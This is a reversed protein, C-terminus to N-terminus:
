AREGPEFRRVEIGARGALLDQMYTEIRGRYPPKVCDWRHLKGAKRAMRIAQWSGSRASRPDHEPYAPFGDVMTGEAVLRANRDAYTTGAPMPIVTVPGAVTLWWPDVQSKNAPVIVVHEAGPRNRFLWRGIFADGGTCGGTVYRGAHPVGTILVNLIVERGGDDLDRASTFSVTVTRLDREAM